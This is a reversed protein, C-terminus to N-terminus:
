LIIHGFINKFSNYGFISEQFSAVMSMLYLLDSYGTLLYIGVIAFCSAIIWKFYDATFIGKMKNLRFELQAKSPPDSNTLSQKLINLNKTDFTGMAYFYFNSRGATLTTGKFMCQSLPFSHSINTGTNIHINKKSVDLTLNMVQNSAFWCMAPYCVLFITVSIPILSYHFYDIMPAGLGSLNVFTQPFVVGHARRLQKYM